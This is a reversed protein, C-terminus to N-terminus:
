DVLKVSHFSALPNVATRPDSSDVLVTKGTSRKDTLFAFAQMADEARKKKDVRSRGKSRAAKKIVKDMETIPLLTPPMIQERPLGTIAQIQDAIYWKNDIYKRKAQAEVLKKGPIMHGGRALTLLRESCAEMWQRLVPAANEIFLLRELELTDPPPLTATNIQKVSKFHSGAVALARQELAPCTPKADCFRCQTEGPNLAADEKLAAEIVLDTTLLHDSIDGMDIDHARIPGLPHFARPQVIVTTIRKIQDIPIEGSYVFGTAYATMQLNRPVTGGVDQHADVAVGEGHKYDIVVLWGLSPLWIFIDCYGGTEGPAAASPVDVFRESWIQANPDLAMIEDVYDLCEGVADCLGPPPDMFFLDSYEYWAHEVDGANLKFLICVELLHTAWQGHITWIKEPRPPVDRCQKESGLCAYLRSLTSPSFRRHTVHGMTM